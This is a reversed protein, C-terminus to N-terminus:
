SHSPLVFNHANSGGGKEGFWRELRDENFHVGILALGFDDVEVPRMQELVRDLRMTQLGLLVDKEGQGILKEWAYASKAEWIGRRVTITVGGPCDSWGRKM